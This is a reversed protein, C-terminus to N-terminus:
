KKEILYVLVPFHDSYGNDWQHTVTFSRHPLGKYPGIKNVLFDRKFIEQKYYAWKGNKNSLLAGSVMIQDILNWEGQFIETGIGKKYMYCWLYNCHQYRYENSRNDLQYM